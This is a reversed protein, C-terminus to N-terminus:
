NALMEDIKATIESVLFPKGKIKNLGEADVLFENRILLRLQGMNLEPILVQDYQELVEGLNIPFPNLYRIHAHAVSKGEELANNVATRVSGFTGGWSVVLLDGSKPGHVQQAPIRNAILKVKEARLLTM